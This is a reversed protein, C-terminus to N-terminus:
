CLKITVVNIRAAIHQYELSSRGLIPPFDLDGATLEEKEIVSGVSSTSSSGEDESVEEYEEEEATDNNIDGLIEDASEGEAVLDHRFEVFMGELEQEGEHHGPVYNRSSSSGTQDEVFIVGAHHGLGELEGKLESESFVPEEEM